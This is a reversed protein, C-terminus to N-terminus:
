FDTELLGSNRQNTKEVETNPLPPPDPLRDYDDSTTPNVEQSIPRNIHIETSTTDSLRIPQTQRRTRNIVRMGPTTRESSLSRRRAVYDVVNGSEPTTPSISHDQSSYSDQSPLRCRHVLDLSKRNRAMVSEATSTSPTGATRMTLTYPLGGNLFHLKRTEPEGDCEVSIMAPVNSNSTSSQRNAGSSLFASLDAAENLISELPSLLEQEATSTRTETTETTRTSLVPKPAIKPKPPIVPRTPKVDLGTPTLVVNERTIIKGPLPGKAGYTPTKRTEHTTDLSVVPHFSSNPSTIVTSTRPTTVPKICISTRIIPEAPSSIVVPRIITSIATTVPTVPSVITASSTVTKVAVSAHVNATASSSNKSAIESTSPVAFNESPPGDIPIPISDRLLAFGARVKSASVIRAHNASAPASAASNRCDSSSDDDSSDRRTQRVVTKNTPTVKKVIVNGVRKTTFTTSYVRPDTGTSAIDSQSATPRTGGRSSEGTPDSLRYSGESMNDYFDAQSRGLQDIFNSGSASKSPLRSDIQMERCVVAIDDFVNPLSVSMPDEVQPNPEQSTPKPSTQKASSGTPQERASPSTIENINQHQVSKPTPVIVQQPQHCFQPGEDRQCSGNRRQTPVTTRVVSAYGEHASLPRLVDFHRAMSDGRNATRQFPERRKHHERVFDILQKQTRGNYRFSSGHSFFLKSERKSDAVEICRFFAHHEVSKKWFGKCENRNEFTFDVTDKYPQSHDPHLKVILRRRKFSLKRIKAWSFHCAFKLQQFVRFGNHTVAIEVDVGMPDKAPHLKIGYFDCRRATELLALDADAPSVGILKRHNEMVKSQFTPTQNPVFRTANLYSADPYDDSSFDGCEAQLIFSALLAATNENCVFEGTALDRRIQLSLLYRTYEEELEAPNPTYFKVVFFFRADSQSSTIQRLISKEKDLWCRNGYGDVFVLGFYDNELLNLHRCVEDFLAQGTARHGLHFVAVTDDLMRVKICMIKGKRPDLGAIPPAGIGLIRNNLKQVDDDNGQPITHRQM